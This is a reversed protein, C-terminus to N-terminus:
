VITRLRDLEFGIALLNRADSEATGSFVIFNAELNGCANYPM